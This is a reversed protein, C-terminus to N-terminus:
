LHLSQPKRLLHSDALTTQSIPSPSKPGGSFRLNLSRCCLKPAWPAPSSGPEEGQGHSRSHSGMARSAQNEKEILYRLRDGKLSHGQHRGARPSKAPAPAPASLLLQKFFATRGTRQLFFIGLSLSFTLITDWPHLSFLRCRRDFALSFPPTGVCPFCGLDRTRHTSPAQFYGPAIAPGRPSTAPHCVRSPSGLVCPM